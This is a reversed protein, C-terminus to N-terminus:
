GRFSFSFFVIKTDIHCADYIKERNKNWRLHIAAAAAAAAADDDRICYLRFRNQNSSEKPANHLLKKDIPQTDCWRLSLNVVVNDIRWMYLLLVVVRRNDSIATSFWLLDGFILAISFCARVRECVFDENALRKSTFIFNPRLSRRKLPMTHARSDCIFIQWWGIGFRNQNPDHWEYCYKKNIPSELTRAWQITSNSYVLLANAIFLFIHCCDESRFFFFLIMFGCYRERQGKEKWENSLRAVDNLKWNVSYWKTNFSLMYLLDPRICNQLM